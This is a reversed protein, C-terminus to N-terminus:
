HVSCTFNQSWLLVPMMVHVNSQTKNITYRQPEKRKNFIHLLMHQNCLITIITVSSNCYYSTLFKHSMNCLCRTLHTKSCVTKNETLKFYVMGIAVTRTVTCSYVNTKTDPRGYSGHLLSVKGAASTASYHAM